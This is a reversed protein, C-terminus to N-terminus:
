EDAESRERKLSSLLDQHLEMWIDHYSNAMPRALADKEGARIRTLAATLRASYTGFRARVGAAPALVATVSTHIEELRAIISADYDADSHDNPVLNGDVTRMQWDTCLQKFAKNVPLFDAYTKELAETVGEGAVDADLLRTYEATGAPLLVFGAVRGGRERAQGSEVLEKLIREAESEPLGSCEAVTAAPAIGKIKLAHLVLFRPDSTTVASM